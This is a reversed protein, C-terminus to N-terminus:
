NELISSPRVALYETVTIESHFPPVTFLTMGQSGQLPVRLRSRLRYRIDVCFVSAAEEM